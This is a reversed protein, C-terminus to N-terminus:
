LELRELQYAMAELTFYKSGVPAPCVATHIIVNFSGYPDISQQSIPYIKV